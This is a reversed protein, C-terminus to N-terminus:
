PPTTASLYLVIAGAAFRSPSANTSASTLQVTADRPVGCVFAKGASDRDFPLRRETWVTDKTGLRIFPTRILAALTTPVSTSSRLRLMGEGWRRMEEGCSRLAATEPSAIPIVIEADNVEPVSVGVLLPEDASLAVSPTELLLSIAGPVVRQLRVGGLSDTASARGSSVIGVLVSRLPRRTISDVVRVIPSVTGRTWLTDRDLRVSLVEGGRIKVNAIRLTSRATRGVGPIVSTSGTERVGLVPYRISWRATIWRGNPLRLFDAHGGAHAALTPQPANVYNFDLSRLEASARDLWLVGAIDVIGDRVTTPHFAVGIRRGADHMTSSDAPATLSLCHTALFSDSLLVDADPAWYTTTTQDATLYGTRALSDPPPTIFPKVSRGSSSSSSDSVLRTGDADFTREDLSATMSLPEANTLSAALLATRAEEWVGFAATSSDTATRCAGGEAVVRVAELTVRASTIVLHRTLSQNGRVVFADSTWPRWGIQLVRVHFTGDHPARLAYRGGDGVSSQTVARGLSDTLAAVAANLPVGARSIIGSISQADLALPAGVVMLATRALAACTM